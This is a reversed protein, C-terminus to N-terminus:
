RQVNSMVEQLTVANPISGDTWSVVVTVIADQNSGNPYPGSVYYYRTFPTITGSTSYSYGNVTDTYLSCNNNSGCTTLQGQIYFGNSWLTPIQCSASISSNSCQSSNGINTLFQSGPNGPNGALNNDKINKLTEMGDQALYTAVMANRSGLAAILANNAITLPGAIAIMLIAIAILTEVLTFGRKKNILNM